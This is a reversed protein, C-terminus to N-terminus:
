EVDENELYFQRANRGMVKAKEEEPWDSIYNQIVNIVQEYNGAVNLVPWDSGYMVRDATFYEATIDLYRELDDAEWSFWNAETIMGSWKCYVRSYQSIEKMMVAWAKYYGAKIYPKALHDIVIPSLPFRDILELAAVLQHPYILLDYTYGREFIIELGRRFEPQMLFMPDKEGQVIHRFGVLKNRHALSDLQKELHESRLDVWGVVGLIFDYDDALELLFNTETISQDVQVAITGTVYNEKLVPELHPPLFDRRIDVMSEDIWKHTDPAYYWFHHHSDIIEM